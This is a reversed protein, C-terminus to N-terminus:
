LFTFLLGVRSKYERYRGGWTRILDREEFYLGIAIYITLGVSMVFLSASMSPLVWIGILVGLMIPHRSYRYMWHEKFPVSEYPKNQAAFWVQRLGFLDFHNIAFTAALLYGWGFSFVAWLSWALGGEVHWLQGEIPQWLLVLIASVVGSTWVFHSRQTSEPLFQNLWNKFKPRAMISHQLGFILLLAVNISLAGSIHDTLPVLGLPIVGAYAFIIASLGGVGVLYSLIGYGLLTIPKMLGPPRTTKFLLITNSM